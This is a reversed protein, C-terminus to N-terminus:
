VTGEVWLDGDGKEDRVIVQNKLTESMLEIFLDESIIGRGLM